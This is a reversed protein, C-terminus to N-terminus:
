ITTVGPIDVRKLGEVAIDRGRSVCLLNKSVIEGFVNESHRKFNNPNFLPPRHFYMDYGMAHIQRVLSEAQDARNCEAYIIPQYKSITQVGGRLVEEEMGEVDIKIFDCANLNLQDITVVRVREGQQHMGLSLGGFNAPATYDLL